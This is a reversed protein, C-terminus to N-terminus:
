QGAMGALASRAALLAKAQTLWSGMAAQAPASMTELLTVAGNLDGAGLATQAEDLVGAAPAGVLVHTGDRITVLGELRALVRSWFGGKTNGAISAAQAAQAAAPFALRLAAETPPPTTAFAALAPPANPIYGIPQGAELASRAADESTLTAIQTALKNLEAASGQLTALTAHDTATQAQVANVQAALTALKMSLDAQVNVSDPAPATHAALTRLDAVEAQLVALQTAAGTVTATQGSLKTVQGAANQDLSYLYAEGGALLLFGMGFAIPWASRSPTPELRAPPPPSIEPQPPPLAAIENTETDSM